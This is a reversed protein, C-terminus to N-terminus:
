SENADAKANRKKALARLVEPWDLKGRDFEPLDKIEQLVDRNFLPRKKIYFCPLGKAIGSQVRFPSIGLFSAAEKINMTADSKAQKLKEVEKEEIIFTKGIRILHLNGAQNIQTVNSKELGVSALADSVACYRGHLEVFM